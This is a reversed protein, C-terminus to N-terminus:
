PIGFVCKQPNLKLRTARLNDFTKPLDELLTAQDQTNIIIGNIYAKVNQGQQDGLTIRMTRQFTPDANKLGFPISIYCYMGVLTTFTTKEEDERLM